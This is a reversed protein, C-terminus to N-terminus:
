MYTQGHGSPHSTESTVGSAGSNSIGLVSGSPFNTDEGPTTQTKRWREYLLLAGLLGGGLLVIDLLDDPNRRTPRSYKNARM